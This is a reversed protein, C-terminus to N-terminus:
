GVFDPNEITIIETRNEFMNCFVCDLVSDTNETRENRNISFECVGEIPNFHSCYNRRSSGEALAKELFLDFQIHNSLHNELKENMKKLNPTNVDVQKLKLWKNYLEEVIEPPLRLEIV